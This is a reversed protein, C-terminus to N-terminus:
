RGERGGGEDPNAAAIAAEICTRLGEGPLIFFTYNRKCVVGVGETVKYRELEAGRRDGREEGGGEGVEGDHCGGAADDGDVGRSKAGRM